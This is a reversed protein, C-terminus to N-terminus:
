WRRRLLATAGLALLSMCAPEPVTATADAPSWNLGIKALDEPGVEGDGDFDGKAWCAGLGGPSWFSGLQALDVGDIRKDADTDGPLISDDPTWVLVLGEWTELSVSGDTLDFLLEAPLATTGDSQLQGGGQATVAFMFEGDPVTVTKTGYNSNVLVIGNDFDRRYVGEFLLEDVNTIKEDSLPAGVDIDYEPWWHFQSIGSTINIYSRERRLLLYNTLLWMREQANSAHSQGIFIKDNNIARLSRNAQQRWDWNGYATTAFGEVMIGHVDEYYGTTTDVTTTLSGVNPIFYMDHSDFYQYVYDYYVEMDDIYATHPPSGIPSDYQDSPVAYPLHTSDAFVGDAHSMEADAISQEAFYEKWGYTTNGNINGSIDMVYEELWGGYLQYVRNGQSDHVFWDEHPDISDWDNSWSDDHIYNQRHGSERVGLRYQIHLFDPNYVRIEDIRRSMQKQTGAYHSAGFRLMEPTASAINLQDAFVRTTDWTDPFTRAPEFARAPTVALGCFCVVLLLILRRHIM